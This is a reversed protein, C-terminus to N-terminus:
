TKSVILTSTSSDKETSRLLPYVICEPEGGPEPITNANIRRTNSPRNGAGFGPKSAWRITSAKLNPYPSRDCKPSWLNTFTDLTHKCFNNTKFVM